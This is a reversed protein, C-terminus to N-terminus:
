RVTKLKKDTSFDDVDGIDHDDYTDDYEDEYDQSASIPAYKDEDEYISYGSTTEYQTAIQKM